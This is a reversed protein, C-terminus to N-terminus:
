EDPEMEEIADMFQKETRFKSVRIPGAGVTQFYVTGREAKTLFVGMIEDPQLALTIPLEDTHYLITGNGINHILIYPLTNLFTERDETLKTYTLM